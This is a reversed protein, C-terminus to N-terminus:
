VNNEKIREFLLVFLRNVKTFTPDILYNFNNNNSQVTMQSRYRNWKMTRKFESKLQESFKKDDGTSLTVVQVYFQTDTIQFELATVAVIAAPDNNKEVARVTM